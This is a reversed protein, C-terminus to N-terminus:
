DTVHIGGSEPLLRAADFLQIPHGTSGETALDALIEGVVPVFKFGHGSFGCAVTADRHGPHRSIVFHEDPTMTYMCARADLLRGPLSPIRPRLQERMFAIEDPRVTRELEGGPPVPDGVNHFAVKVGGDPGDIAPFGYVETGDATEWVYIPQREPGFPAIGRPGTPEFWYMVRREVRIPQALEPLLEPAWAGPALILHAARYTARGSTVWVGETGAGETGAGETEAGGWDLAPEHFRLEAGHEAALRLQASVAAEPRALGAAREYFGVDEPSPTFAPFRRRIEAADLLEHELDWQRASALSGAVMQGDEPGVMVGGTATFVEEGSDAALQQWLERARLLLPVYAPDEAYACRYIRSDGHSSGRDHAPGFRELGLVRVGRRALHHVAASGMGGLGLVIVDYRADAARPGRPGHPGRSPPAM